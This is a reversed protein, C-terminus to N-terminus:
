IEDIFAVYEMDLIRKSEEVASSSEYEFCTEAKVPAQKDDKEKELFNLGETAKGGCARELTLFAFTGGVVPRAMFAVGPFGGDGETVYLDTFPRDALLPIWNAYDEPMFVIVM